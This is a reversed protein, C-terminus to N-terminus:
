DPNSEFMQVQETPSEPDKMVLMEVEPANAQVGPSLPSSVM